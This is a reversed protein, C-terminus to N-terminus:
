ALLRPFWHCGPTCSKKNSFACRAIRSIKHKDKLLARDCSATLNGVYVKGGSSPHEWVLDLNRYHHLSNSLSTAAGEEPLSMSAKLTQVCNVTGVPLLLSWGLPIANAVRMCTLAELPAFAHFEIADELALNRRFVTLPTVV